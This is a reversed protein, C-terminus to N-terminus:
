LMGKKEKKVGFHMKGFVMVAVGAITIFGGVIQVIAPFVGLFLYASILVFLGHANQILSEKSVEIYKFASYQLMAALFPGFFSGLAIYLYSKQSVHFGTHSVLMAIVFLALIFVVRNLSLLYPDLSKINKKAIVLGIASFLASLIAMNAGKVLFDRFSLTGSFSLMFAGSLTILIGATEMRNFKENLLPISILTIFVPVMNVMFSSIAPNEIERIALFFSVAALLEFFGIIAFAKYMKPPYSLLIKIRGSGVVMTANYVVAMLFWYFGFAYFPTERLAAKSFIYVNSVSLAALGALLYGKTSKKQFLKKFM